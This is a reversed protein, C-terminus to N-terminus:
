KNFYYIDHILQDKVQIVHVNFNYDFGAYFDCDDTGCNDNDNDNDNLKGLGNIFYYCKNKYINNAKRNTEEVYNKESNFNKNKDLIIQYFKDVPKKQNGNIGGFIIIKENRYNMCVFGCINMNILDYNMYKLYKWTLKDKDESLNSIDCFEITDLYKNTPTNYGFLCFIFQDHVICASFFSREIKMENIEEWTKRDPNYMEVKKNYKGNLCFIKDNHYLLVGNAHNNKLNCIKEMSDNEKDYIYFIDSNKGTVIYLINKHFLFISNYQSEEKRFSELYNKNFNDKKSSNITKFSFNKSDLDFSLLKQSNSLPYITYILKNINALKKEKFFKSNLNININEISNIESLNPQSQTRNLGNIKKYIKSSKKKKYIKCDNIVSNNQQSIRYTNNQNIKKVKNFTNDDTLNSEKDLKLNQFNEPLKIILSDNNRGIINNNYKTRTKIKPNKQNLEEKLQVIESKNNISITTLNDIKENAEQLKQELQQIKKEYIKILKENEQNNLGNRIISIDFHIMELNTFNNSKQILKKTEYKKMINIIDNTNEQMKNENNEKYDKNINLHNSEAIYNNILNNDFKEKKDDINIIKNTEQNEYNKKKNNYFDENTMFCLLYNNNSPSRNNIINKIKTNYNNIDIQNKMKSFNGFTNYNNDKFSPEYNSNIINEKRTQNNNFKNRSINKLLNNIENQSKKDNLMKQKILSSNSSSKNKFKKKIKPILNTKQSNQNNNENVNLNINENEKNDNKDEKKTINNASKHHVLKKVKNKTNDETHFNNSSYNKNNIPLLITQIHCKCYCSCQCFSTPCNCCNCPYNNKRYTIKNKNLLNNDFNM